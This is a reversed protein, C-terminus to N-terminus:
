RSLNVDNDSFDVDNDTLAVDNNQCALMTKKVVWRREKSLDVDNDQCTLTTIQFTLM